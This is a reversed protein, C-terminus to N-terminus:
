QRTKDIITNMDAQIVWMPIFGFGVFGILLYILSNDTARIGAKEQADAIQKGKKYNWYLAYIGCTIISFFVEKWGENEENLYDSIDNSLNAMWFIGYIGLTVFTLVISLLVGRKKLM